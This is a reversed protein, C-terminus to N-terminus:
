IDMSAFLDDLEKVSNVKSESKDKGGSPAGSAAKEEAKKQRNKEKELAEDVAAKVMDEYIRARMWFITPSSM